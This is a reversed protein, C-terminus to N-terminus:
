GAAVRDALARGVDQTGARGGLEPTRPAHPDSLLSEIAGLVANHADPHGLHGLHAQL